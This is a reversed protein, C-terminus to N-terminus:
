VLVGSVREYPFKYHREGTADNGSHCEIVKEILSQAFDHCIELPSDGHKNLWARKPKYDITVEAGQIIMFIIQMQETNRRNKRMKGFITEM